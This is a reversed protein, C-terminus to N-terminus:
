HVSRSSMLRQRCKQKWGRQECNHPFLSHLLSQADIRNSETLNAGLCEGQTGSGILYAEDEEPGARWERERGDCRRDLVRM